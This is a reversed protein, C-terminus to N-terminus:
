SMRASRATACTVAWNGPGGTWTRVAYVCIAQGPGGHSAKDAQEDGAPGLRGVRVPAAVPCKGIATGGLEGAWRAEAVRGANASVIQGYDV